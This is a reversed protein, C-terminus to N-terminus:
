CGRGRPFVVLPRALSGDSQYVAVLGHRGHVRFRGRPGGPLDNGNEARREEESGVERCPLFALAQDLTLVGRGGEAYREPSLDFVPLADVVSFMGTRTRRLSSAYAGAGTAEGIQGALSRVYTGGGTLAIFRATQTGADFDTMVLDYIMVEREPTEVKEGRRAKEYLREGGVKVASALPVRQRIRGRLGDLARVVECATVRGGTKEIDGTPDGTTSVAGFQVTFEYEKPLTMILSSIRTAAGILIVLLGSAFPDLTGAHGVRAAVGRRAKRVIDFSTPGAPKDVLVLLGAPGREAGSM